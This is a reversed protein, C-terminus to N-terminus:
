ETLHTQLFTQFTILRAFFLYIFLGGDAPESGTQAACHPLVQLLPQYDIHTQINGDWWSSLSVSEDGRGILYLSGRSAGREM